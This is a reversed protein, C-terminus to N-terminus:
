DQFLSVNIRFGAQHFQHNKGSVFVGVDIYPTGIGYGVESYPTLHSLFLLNFYLSENKIFNVRPLIKQLVLFPSQYTANARFYKNAANYWDSSLLQFVGHLEDSRDVPLSSHKLFAYDVFYTNKTYFFGGGGARLFLVDSENIKLNYQADLEARMYVSTAGLAGRVGQEVDLAFRPMRSGVNVKREGKIYYYMGPQWTLRVHPAFQVYEKRLCLGQAALDENVSGILKRRRYNIGTLLELGNVLERSHSVNIYFNKFYNLNLNDFNLSDAVLQKIRELAESSYTRNGSGVAVSLVGLKRPNYLYGGDVDWYFAKQKFNYGVMPRLSLEQGNKQVSKLNLAIKYSLGRSTSYSLYSPNIIPSMRVEGGDWEFKYSSIMQDGINWLWETSSPVTDSEVVETASDFVGSVCYFLSDAEPLPKTRHQEVYAVNDDVSKDALAAATDISLNYEDSSRNKESLPKVSAFTFDGEATLRFRNGAFDYDIELEVSKVLSGQGMEYVVSFSCQEDWGKACFAKINCDEDLLLWGKELLKINDLRHTFNIKVGGSADNYFTDVSYEYYKKNSSHLPSLYGRNFINEGYVLPTMFLLVRDMEGSGHRHTTISARRRILPLAYDYFVFDYCLESLYENKDRDFRPMGPIFSLAVNKKDVEIRQKLYLSGVSEGVSFKGAEVSEAVVGMLSDVLLSARQKKDVADAALLLSPRLLMIALLAM